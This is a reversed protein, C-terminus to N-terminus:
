SSSKPAGEAGSPKAEWMTSRRPTTTEVVRTCPHTFGFIRVDVETLGQAAVAILAGFAKAREINDRTQMSGSCDIALGLFLDRQPQQERRILARPDNTLVLPLLRSRDLRRGQLVRTRPVWRLGLDEFWKRLQLAPRHVKERYPEFAASDFPM